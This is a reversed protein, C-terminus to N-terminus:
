SDPQDADSTYVRVIRSNIRVGGSNIRRRKKNRMQLQTLRGKVLYICFFLLTIYTNTVILAGLSFFFQGDAYVTPSFLSHTGNMQEGWLYAMVYVFTLTVM